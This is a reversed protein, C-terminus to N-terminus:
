GSSPDNSLASAARPMSGRFRRLIFLASFGVLLISSFWRAAVEGSPVATKEPAHTSLWDTLAQWHAPGPAVAYLLGFLGILLMSGQVVDTWAVARLGGLTEYIIIVLVLVLVGIWYPILNGSIGAVVHGMAM